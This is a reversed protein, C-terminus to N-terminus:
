QIGLKKKMLPAVDVSKTKSVYPTAGSKEEIIYLFGNEVGVEQLARRVKQIIPALLEQQKQAIDQRAQEVYQQIKTYSEQLEQMKEAQQTKDMTQAKQQFDQYMKQFDANLTAITSEIRSQEADLTKQVEKVAPMQEMFANSDFHGLKITQASISVVAVLVFALSLFLKKM